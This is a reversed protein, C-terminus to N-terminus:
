TSGLQQPTILQAADISVQMFVQQFVAVMLLLLQQM